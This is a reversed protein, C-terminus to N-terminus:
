QFRLHHPTHNPAPKLERKQSHLAKWFDEDVGYSCIQKKALQLALLQRLKKARDPLNELGQVRRRTVSVVCCIRWPKAEQQELDGVLRSWEAFGTQNTLNKSSRLFGTPDSDRWALYFKRISQPSPDGKTDRFREFDTWGPVRCSNKIRYVLVLSSRQNQPFFM